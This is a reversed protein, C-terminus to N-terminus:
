TVPMGPEAGDDPSLLFIDKGGPGAALVMGESTGFRMKRPKLNAVVVVHKGLLAAPDYANRIGAFVTRESDGLDLRLRILRDAGKVYTAAAIRAVRLDMKAFHEIDIEDIPEPPATEAPHAVQAAVVEAPAEAAQTAPTAAEERAETLIAEISDAEIRKLLARFEEIRTGLLPRQADAWTLERCALFQEARGTVGPLVPKLLVILTRFLNLGQTCVAVVADRRDDERAMIWPKQEDIYRNARDALAMIKRMASAFNRGEYEEAIDDAAAAFEAFLAEDPLKGALVGDNLRHIFGACRSAINVLKGVLDSNVKATLDSFNLDIDDAGPGLKSAYYYRLYDADLHKGFTSARIFTGRRKSIKEGSITLFGHVFM